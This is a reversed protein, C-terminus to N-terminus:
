VCKTPNARLQYVFAPLVVVNELSAGVKKENKSRKKRSDRCSLYACEFNEHSRRYKRLLKGCLAPEPNRNPCTM